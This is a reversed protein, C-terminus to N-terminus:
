TVGDCSRECLHQLMTQSRRQHMWYTMRMMCCRPALAPLPPVCRIAVVGVSRRTGMLGLCMACAQLSLPPAPGPGPRPPAAAQACSVRASRSHVLYYSDKDRSQWPPGRYPLDHQM